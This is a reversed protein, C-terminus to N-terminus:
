EVQKLYINSYKIRMIEMKGTVPNVKTTFKRGTRKSIECLYKRFYNLNEPITIKTSQGIKLKDIASHVLKYTDNM